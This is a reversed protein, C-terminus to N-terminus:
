SNNNTLLQQYKKDLIDKIESPMRTFRIYFYKAEINQVLVKAYIDESLKPCDELLLDIKLNDLPSPIAAPDVDQCCVKAGKAALEIFNGSVIRESIKKDEVTAYKLAIPRDLKLFVEEEQTLALAYKGQIGLVDYIIIPKKVGKPMVEKQGAIVIESSVKQYTNESILIQGGITYSEIRYTLNVQSGVVGYKTRKESGINGVVVEGTNIGIGMELDSHGWKHMQENVQRIALQMEIACAIARQEDDERAIPAGFLVLIGDGMFEDITGQYRTIIDAMHKLYFNLIKVVEEPPLEEATATFGRLDSTLLTIQRREGGLKLGEPSELLTSVIENSLYRGFTNRIQGASRALYANISIMSGILTLIAPVVPIWLSQLFALYTIASLLILLTPPLLLLIKNHIHRVNWISIAGVISWLSIWLYEIPESWTYLIPRNDIATSILQSTINAHIEVGTMYESPNQTHPTTFIDHFSQGTKGILIVRDKGWDAPVRNKLIDTMSVTTFHKSPGRYNLLIQYGGADARIYGGDNGEFPILTTKGLLWWNNTNPAIQPQIGKSDLYLLALYLGFSYIPQGSDDNVSLLARRIKNDIDSITDNSGIQGKSKLIPSPAIAETTKDGIVKEVGILNPTSAFVKVLEQYGPEVPLDRVIDLGIATPKMAKLKVLLKALTRDDVVGARIGEPNEHLDAETIGVILVRDDRKERPHSRMYLDFVSLEAPQLFGLWRILIVLTAITPSVVWVARWQWFVKHWLKKSTLNNLKQWV